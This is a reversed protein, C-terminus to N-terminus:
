TLVCVECNDPYVLEVKRGCRNRERTREESLVAVTKSHKERQGVKRQFSLAELDHRDTIDAPVAVRSTSLCISVVNPDTM